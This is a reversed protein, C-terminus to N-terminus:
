EEEAGATVIREIEDKMADGWARVMDAAVLPGNPGVNEYIRHLELALGTFALAIERKCRAPADNECPETVLADARIAAIADPAQLAEARTNM